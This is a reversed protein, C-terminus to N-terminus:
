REPKILGAGRVVAYILLVFPIILIGAALALLLSVDLKYAIVFLFIIIGWSMVYFILNLLTVSRSSAENRLLGSLVKASFFTKGIGVATGLVLGIAIFLNLGWLIFTGILLLGLSITSGITLFRM